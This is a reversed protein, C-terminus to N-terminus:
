RGKRSGRAAADPARPETMEAPTRFQANQVNIVITGSKGIVNFDGLAGGDSLEKRFSNGLATRTIIQDADIALGRGCILHQLRAISDTECGGLDL